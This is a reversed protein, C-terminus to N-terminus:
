PHRHSRVPSHGATTSSRPMARAGCRCSRSVPPSAPSHRGLRRQPLLDPRRQRRRLHDQVGCSGVGRVPPLCQRDRRRCITRIRVDGVALLRLAGPVAAGIAAPARHGLPTPEAPVRRIRLRAAAALRVPVRPLGACRRRRRWRRALGRAPRPGRRFARREDDGEYRGQAPLRGIRFPSVVPPLPV